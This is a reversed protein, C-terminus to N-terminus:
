NDWFWAVGLLGPGTHAALSATVEVVDVNAGPLRRTMRGQLDFAGPTRASHFIMAHLEASTISREWAKYLRDIARTPSRTVGVPAPSSGAYKVIPHLRLAGGIATLAPMRGSRRLFDLQSLTAWIQMNSAVAIARETTAELDAGSRAAAAAQAAVIGQGGAATRADLVRVRDDGLERAALTASEYTRSFESTPCVVLVGDNTALIERLLKAYFEPSAAGTKPPTKSELREEIDAYPSDGRNTTGDPWAVELAVINLPLERMWAQPM